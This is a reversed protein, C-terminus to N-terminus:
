KSRRAALSKTVASLPSGRGLGLRAGHFWRNPNEAAVLGFLPADRALRAYARRGDRRATRIADFEELARQLRLQRQAIRRQRPTLNGRELARRYTLQWARSMRGLSGSVSPAGLRYVAIPERTAVVRYGLELIRLWLDYDETGVIDPCFGGAEAVVARPAVAGGFISNARLLTTLTVEPPFGMVEMYTQPLLGGHVLLAANCAVIGVRVGRGRSEDHLRAQRELYDPRWLDDADLFALLEGSSAAIARNRAAAPGENVSTRLVRVRDGFAEAQEDTGDTSADDAVVAEWDDYTQAHLSRLTEAIYASANFAPIIVTVRPV